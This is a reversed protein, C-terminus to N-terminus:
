ETIPALVVGAIDLAARHTHRYDPSLRKGALLNVQQGRISLKAGTVVLYARPMTSAVPPGAPEPPLRPDDAGIEEPEEDELEEPPAPETPDVHPAAGAAGFAPVRLEPTRVAVVRMADLPDIARSPQTPQYQSPRNRKAM